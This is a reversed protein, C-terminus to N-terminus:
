GGFGARIEEAEKWEAIVFDALSEVISDVPAKDGCYGNEMLQYNGGAYDEIIERFKKMLLEKDM